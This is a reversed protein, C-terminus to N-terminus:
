RVRVRDVPGLDTDTTPPQTLGHCRLVVVRHVRHRRGDVHHAPLQRRDRLRRHPRHARGLGLPRQDVDGPEGRLHRLQLQLQQRMRLPDLDPRSHPRRRRRVPQGVGRTRRPRRDMTRSPQSSAQLGRVRDDVFREGGRLDIDLLGVHDHVGDVRQRGVQHVGLGAVLGLREQEALRTVVIRLRQPDHSAPQELHGGGLLSIGLLGTPELVLFGGGPRRGRERHRVVPVALAVAPERDGRQVPRHEAFGEQRDGGRGTVGVPGGVQGGLVLEPEREHLVDLGAGFGGDGGGAPTAAVTTTVM